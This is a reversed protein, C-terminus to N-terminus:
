YWCHHLQEDTVGGKSTVGQYVVVEFSENTFFCGLVICGAVLVICGAVVRM